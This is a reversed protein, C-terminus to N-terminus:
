RAGKATGRTDAPLEEGLGAARRVVRRLRDTVDAAIGALRRNGVLSLMRSADVAAIRTVGGHQYVVVNCPLLAGLEVEVDLAAHALPPNCAGLIAYPEGEIGLRSELTAQVDIECLVGFGERQLEYRARTLADDFGAQTEVSITYPLKSAAHEPEADLVARARARHADVDPPEPFTANVFALIETEGVVVREGEVLVPITMVGTAVALDTRAEREAPVQRAVFAVGLETLRERVRRSSPCWEAQWLEVTRGSM